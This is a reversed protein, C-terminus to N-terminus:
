FFHPPLPYDTNRTKPPTNPLSTTNQIGWTCPPTNWSLLIANPHDNIQNKPRFRFFMIVIGDQYILGLIYPLSVTSHLTRNGIYSFWGVWLDLSKMTMCGSLYWKPDICGEFCVSFCFGYRAFLWFSPLFARHLSSYLPLLESILSLLWSRRLPSTISKPLELVLM